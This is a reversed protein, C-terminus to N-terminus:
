QTKEIQDRVISVRIKELLDYYNHIQLTYKNQIFLSRILIILGIPWTAFSLYYLIKISIILSNHATTLFFAFMLASLISTIFTCILVWYVWYPVKIHKEYSKLEALMSRKTEVSLKQTNFKAYVKKVLLDIKAIKKM